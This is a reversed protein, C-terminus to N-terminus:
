IEDEDDFNFKLSLEFSLSNIKKNKDIGLLSNNKNTRKKDFCTIGM